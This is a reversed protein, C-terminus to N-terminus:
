SDGGLGFLRLMEQVETESVAANGHAKTVTKKPTKEKAPSSTNGKALNKPHVIEVHGLLRRALGKDASILIYRKNMDKNILSVIVDDAERNRSFMLRSPSPLGFIKKPFGDIVLVLSGKPYDQRVLHAVQTIAEEIPLTRLSASSPISHLTNIVDVVIM